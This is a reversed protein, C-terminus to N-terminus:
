RLHLWTLQENRFFHKSPEFRGADDFSGVHFHTEDPLQTTECTLTSGCRACFGRTTGPSSKFRTIEGKTVTYADREFGVFVSVPAGSHRRCSQCHCWFVGTPKGTAVFRVAGCLCGGESKDNPDPNNM